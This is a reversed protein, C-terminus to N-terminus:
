HYRVQRGVCTSTLSVSEIGPNPLDGLPPCGVGTNKDLSDWPCLLKPPSQDM